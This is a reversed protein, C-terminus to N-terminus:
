KVTEKELYKGYHDIKEQVRERRSTIFAIMRWVQHEGEARLSFPQRITPPPPGEQGLTSQKLALIFARGQVEEGPLPLHAM